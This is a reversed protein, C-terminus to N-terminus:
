SPPQTVFKIFRETFDTYVETESYQSGIRFRNDVRGWSLISSFLGANKIESVCSYVLDLNVKQSPNALQICNAVEAAFEQTRIASKKNPMGYIAALVDLAPRSLSRLIDVFKFKEAAELDSIVTGNLLANAFLQQKEAYEANTASAVVKRCFNQGEESNIWKEDWRLELKELESILDDLFKKLLIEEVKKQYGDCAEVIVDIFPIKKALAKIVSEKVLSKGAAKLSEEVIQDSNQKM